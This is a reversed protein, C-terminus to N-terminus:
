YGYFAETRMNDEDVEAAILTQRMAEVMTPPGVIYYIPQSPDAIATTLLAVDITGTHGSWPRVSDNMLTMTAVLRFNTNRRELDQLEALFAADEPRRNTYLLTLSQTVMDHAAQRLISIFPTIGIGGAIFVAPRLRNSHLALSGFPGDITVPSGVALSGLGRKFASDRMRTAIVLRNEVPASVISFAHRASAPDAGPSDPLVVDIAQGPKFGFGSPKEFHFAMTGHAIEAREILKVTHTTM